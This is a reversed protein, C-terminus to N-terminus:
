MRPSSHDVTALESVRFKVVDTGSQVIDEPLLNFLVQAGTYVTSGLAAGILSAISLVCRAIEAYMTFRDRKRIIQHLHPFYESIDAPRRQLKRQDENTREAFSRLSFIQEEMVVSGEQQTRPRLSIAQFSTELMKIMNSIGYHVNCGIDRMIQYSFDNKLIRFSESQQHVQEVFARSSSRLKTAPNYLNETFTGDQHLRCVCTLYDLVSARFSMVAFIPGAIFAAVTIVFLARIRDVLFTQTLVKLVMIADLLPGPLSLTKIRHRETSRERLDVLSRAERCTKNKHILSFVGRLFSPLNELSDSGGNEFVSVSVYGM